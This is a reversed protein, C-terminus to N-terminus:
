LQNGDAVHRKASHIRFGIVQRNRDVCVDVHL